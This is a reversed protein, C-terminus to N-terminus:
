YKCSIPKGQSAQLRSPRASSGEDLGMASAVQEYNLGDDDDDDGHVKDRGADDEVYIGTTWENSDEILEQVSIPDITDRIDYREVLLSNYKVFVM